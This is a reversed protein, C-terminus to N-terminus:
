RQGLPKGGAFFCLRNCRCLRYDRPQDEQWYVQGLGNKWAAQIADSTAVNDIERVTIVKSKHSTTVPGSVPVMWNSSSGLYLRWPAGGSDSFIIEDAQAFAGTSLLATLILVLFRTATKLNKKLNTM